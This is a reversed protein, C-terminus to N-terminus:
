YRCNKHQSLPALSSDLDVHPENDNQEELEQLADLLELDEERVAPFSIQVLEFSLKTKPLRKGVPPM